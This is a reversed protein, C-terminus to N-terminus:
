ISRSCVELDTNAQEREREKENKCCFCKYENDDFVM